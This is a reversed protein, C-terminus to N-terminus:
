NATITDEDSTSAHKTLVYPVRHGFVIVMPRLKKYWIQALSLDFCVFVYVVLYFWIFVPFKQSDLLQAM